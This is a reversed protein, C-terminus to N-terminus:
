KKAKGEPAKISHQQQQQSDLPTNRVPQITQAPPAVVAVLTQRPPLGALAVVLAATALLVSVVLLYFSPTVSWHPHRIESLLKAHSAEERVKQREHLLQVAAIHMEASEVWQHKEAILQEDSYDSYRAKWEAIIDKKTM